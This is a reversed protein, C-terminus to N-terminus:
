KKPPYYKFIKEVVKQVKKNVKEIDKAPDKLPENSITDTATARWVESTNTSDKMEIILAGKVVRWAAEVSGASPGWTGPRAVTASDFTDMVAAHYSIAIDGSVGARTLGKLTMQQDVMEIIRKDIDPNKAPVGKTWYYTKFKSFDIAHDYGVSVKQAQATVSAFLILGTFLIVRNLSM